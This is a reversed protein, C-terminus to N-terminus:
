RNRVRICFKIVFDGEFRGCYTWRERRKSSAHLSTLVLTSQFGLPGCLADLAVLPRIGEKAKFDFIPPLSPTGMITMVLFAQLFSLPLPHPPPPFPVLFLIHDRLFPPSPASIRIRLEKKAKKFKNTNKENNKKM